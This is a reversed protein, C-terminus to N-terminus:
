RSECSWALVWTMDLIVGKGKNHSSMSDALKLCYAGSLTVIGGITPLWFLAAGGLANNVGATTLEKVASNTQSNTYTTRVGWWFTESKPKTAFPTIMSKNTISLDDNVVVQGNAVQKNIEEFSKELLDVQNKIYIYEPMNSDVYLFGQDNKHVYPAVESISESADETSAHLNPVNVNLTAGHSKTSVNSTKEDAHAFGSLSGLALMSTVGLIITKKMKSEVGIIKTLM